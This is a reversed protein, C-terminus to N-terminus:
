TAGCRKIATLQTVTMFILHVCRLTGGGGWVCVCVLFYRGSSARFTEHIIPQNIDNSSLGFGIMIKAELGM